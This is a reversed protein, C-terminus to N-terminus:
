AAADAHLADPSHSTTIALSANQANTAAWEPSVRAAATSTQAVSSPRPGTKTAGVRCVGAQTGTTTATNNATTADHAVADM